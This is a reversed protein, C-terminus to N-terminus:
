ETKAQAAQLRERLWARMEASIKEFAALHFVPVAGSRASDQSARAIVADKQHEILAFSPKREKEADAAVALCVDPRVHEVIRNSEFIVQVAPDDARLTQLLARATGALEDAEATVLFAREAGAALTRAGDTGQGAVREEWIAAPQGHAHTTIKVATWRFEPLAAIIGCVLATKGVGRSSGGVVVIAM